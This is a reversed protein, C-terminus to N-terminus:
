CRFIRFLVYRRLPPAHAALRPHAPTDHAEPTLSRMPEVAHPTSVDKPAPTSPVDGMATHLQACRWQCHPNMPAPTEAPKPCCPMGAHQEIRATSQRDCWPEAAHTTPVLWGLLALTLLSTVVTFRRSTKM